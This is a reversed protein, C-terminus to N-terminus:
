RLIVKVSIMVNNNPTILIVKVSIMANNNPTILNRTAIYISPSNINILLIRIYNDSTHSILLKNMNCCKFRNVLVIGWTWFKNFRNDMWTIVNLNIVQCPLHSKM